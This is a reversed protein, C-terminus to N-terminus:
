EGVTVGVRGDDGFEVACGHDDIFKQDDWIETFETKYNFVIRKQDGGYKMIRAIAPRSPHKFYSGNTSVLYLPCAIRELLEQSINNRSGHHAVKFADLRVRGNADKELHEFAQLLVSPYADAGLLARHDGHEVLLAISSGNAEAGDEAYDDGALEDIDMTGGFGEEGPLPEPLEDTPLIEAKKCEREWVPLLGVRVITSRM